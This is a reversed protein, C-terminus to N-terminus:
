RSITLLTFSDPAVVGRSAMKATVSYIVHTAYDLAMTRAGNETAAHEVLSIKEPSDEHVVTLTGDGCSAFALRTVPDFRDADVGTGIPATGLVKGTDGDVFAMLKNHCGVFLREHTADIALGSPGTCPALPWAHDLHLTKADFEALENKDELDVFIRGKGDAVAFEPQGGLAVEGLQQGNTADIATSTGTRNMAFVRKTAPDYVIADPEKGTKAEGIKQLTNTDFITVASTDGNTTFGRHLDAAIAIGHVFPTNPVDGVIKGQAPDVVMVHTARTIFVRHTAPDVELYDWLGDGGLVARKTVHYGSAGSAQRSVVSPSLIASVAICAVFGVVTKILMAQDRFKM